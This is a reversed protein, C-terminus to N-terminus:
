VAQKHASGHTWSQAAGERKDKAQQDQERSGSRFFPEELLCVIGHFGGDHCSLPERHIHVGIARRLGYAAVDHHQFLFADQNYPAYCGYASVDDFALGPLDKQISFQEVSVGSPVFSLKTWFESEEVVKTGDFNRGALEEDQTIVAGVAAVATIRFEAQHGCALDAAPCDADRTRM